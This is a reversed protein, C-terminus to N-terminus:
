GINATTWMSGKMFSLFEQTEIFCPCWLLSLQQHRQYFCLSKPFIMWEEFYSGGVFSPPCWAPLSKSRQWSSPWWLSQVFGLILLNHIEVFVQRSCQASASLTYGQPALFHLSFLPCSLFLLRHIDKCDQSNVLIQPDLSWSQLPDARSLWLAQQSNPHLFGKRKKNWFLFCIPADRSWSRGMISCDPRVSEMGREM